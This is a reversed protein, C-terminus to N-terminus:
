KLKLNIPFFFVRMDHPWTALPKYLTSFMFICKSINFRVCIYVYIASM